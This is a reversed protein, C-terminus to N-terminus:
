RSDKGYAYEISTNIYQTNAEKSPTIRKEAVAIESKSEQSM